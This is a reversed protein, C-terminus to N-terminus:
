GLLWEGLKLFPWFGLLVLTAAAGIIAGTALGVAIWMLILAPVSRRDLGEELRILLRQMIDRKM